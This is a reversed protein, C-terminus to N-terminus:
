LPCDLGFVRLVEARLAARDITGSDAQGLGVTVADDVEADVARARASLGSWIAEAEAQDRGDFEPADLAAVFASALGADLATMLTPLAADYEVSEGPQITLRDLADPKGLTELATEFPGRVARLTTRLTELAQTGCHSDGEAIRRGLGVPGGEADFLVGLARDWGAASREELGGSAVLLLYADLSRAIRRAAWAAGGYANPADTAAFGTTFDLAIRGALASGADDDKEVGARRDRVAGVGTPLGETEFYVSAMVDPASPSTADNGSYAAADGLTQNTFADDRALALLRDAASAHAVVTPANAPDFALPGSTGPGAGGSGADGNSEGGCAVLGSAAMWVWPVWRGWRGVPSAM